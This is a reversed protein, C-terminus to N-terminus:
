DRTGWWMAHPTPYLRDVQKRAAEYAAADWPKRSYLEEVIRRAPALLINSTSLTREVHDTVLHVALEPQGCLRKLMRYGGADCANIWVQYTSLNQRALRTLLAVILVPGISWTSLRWDVACPRPVSDLGRRDVRVFVALGASDVDAVACGPM